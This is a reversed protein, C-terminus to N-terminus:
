MAQAQAHRGLGLVFVSAGAVVVLAGGWIAVAVGLGNAAATAAQLGAVLATFGLTHSVWHWWGAAPASLLYVAALAVSSLSAAVALANLLTGLAPALAAAATALLAFELFIAARGDTRLRVRTAVWVSAAIVCGAAALPVLGGLWTAGVWALGAVGWAWGDRRGLLAWASIAVAAAAGTEFAQLSPLAASGGGAHGAPAFAAALMIVGITAVAPSWAPLRLRVGSAAMAVLVWAWGYAVDWAFSWRPGAHALYIAIGAAGWAMWLWSAAAAAGRGLPTSRRKGIRLIAGALLMGLWGLVLWSVHLSRVTAFSAVGVAFSPLFPRNHLLPYLGLMWLGTFLGGLFWIGSWRFFRAEVSRIILSVEGSRHQAASRMRRRECVRQIPLPLGATQWLLGLNLFM